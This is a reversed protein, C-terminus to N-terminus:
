FLFEPINEVNCDNMYVTGVIIMSLPIVITFGIIVTCGLTGILIIFLKRVFDWPTAASKRADRVQGFLSQYSPPPAEPNIVDDYSPPPGATRSMYLPVTGPISSYSPPPVTPLGPSSQPPSVSQGDISVRIMPPLTLPTTTQPSIEAATSDIAVLRPATSQNNDNTVVTQSM